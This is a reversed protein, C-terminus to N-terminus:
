TLGLEKQYMDGWINKQEDKAVTIRANFLVCCRPSFSKKFAETGLVKERQRM